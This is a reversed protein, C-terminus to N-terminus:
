GPFPIPHLDLTCRPNDGQLYLTGDIAPQRGSMGTARGGRLDAFDAQLTAFPRDPKSAAEAQVREIDM